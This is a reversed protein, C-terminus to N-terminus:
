VPLLRTVFEALQAVNRCEVMEILEAYAPAVSDGSGWLRTPEPNLWYAHRSRAVLERLVPLGPDRFNTRADGLVLLSTKPGVADPWREAFAEFARGYDSHGDYGVVDAERSLRSVAATRRVRPTTSLCALSTARALV